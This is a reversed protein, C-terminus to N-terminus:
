DQMADEAHVMVGDDEAAGTAAAAAAAAADWQAATQARLLTDRLKAMGECQAERLVRSLLGDDGDDVLRSALRAALGGGGGGGPALAQQQQQQQQQEAAIKEEQYQLLAFLALGGDRLQLEARRETDTLGADRAALQQWRSLEDGCCLATALVATLRERQTRPHRWGTKGVLDLALTLADQRSIGREAPPPAERAHALLQEVAQQTSCAGGGPLQLWPLREQVRLCYQEDAADCLRVEGRPEEAARGDIPVAVRAVPPLEAARPPPGGADPLTAARHCLKGLSLVAHREDVSSAFGEGQLAWSYLARAAHEFDGEEVLQMWHLGPHRQLFTRLAPALYPYREPLRLLQRCGLPGLEYVGQLLEAAFSGNRAAEEAALTTGGAGGAGGGGAPDEFRLLLAAQLEDAPPLACGPPAPKTCLAALTKFDCFDEALARLQPLAELARLQAAAAQRAGELEARAPGADGRARAVALKTALGHLRVGHVAAIAEVLERRAAVDRETLAVGQAEHVAAQAQVQVAEALRLLPELVAAAATWPLLGARRAAEEAAGLAEAGGGRGDDTCVRLQEARYDVVARLPLVAAGCLAALAGLREACTAAAALPTAATACLQTLLLEFTSVSTAAAAGGDAGGAAAGGAAASPAALLAGYFGAQGEGAPAAAELASLLMQANAASAGNRLKCLALAVAVAEGPRLLEGFRRPQRSPSLMAHHSVCFAVFSAHAALRQKLPGELLAWGAGLPEAALEEAVRVVARATQEAADDRATALLQPLPQPAGLLGGGRAAASAGERWAQKLESRLEDDAVAPAAAGAGGGGGGARAGGGRAPQHYGLRVLRGSLLLLVGLEDGGGGLVCRDGLQGLLPPEAPAAAAAAASGALLLTRAPQGTADRLAWASAATSFVVLPGDVGSAAVLRAEAGGALGGALGGAATLVDDQRWPQPTLTAGDESAVLCMVALQCAASGPPPQRTALLLWVAVGGGAPAPAARFDVVRWDRGGIAELQPELLPRLAHEAAQAWPGTPGGQRTYVELCQTLHPEADSAATLCLAMGGEGCASHAVGVIPMTPARSSQSLLGMVGSLLSTLTSGGRQLASLTVTAAAAGQRATACVAYAQGDSAAFLACASAAGRAGAPPTISQMTRPQATTGRPLACTALPAPAALQLQLTQLLHALPYLSLGSRWCVLLLPGDGPNVVCVLSADATEGAVGSALRMCAQPADTKWVHLAGGLAVWAIGASGVGFSCPERLHDPQLDRQRLATHLEAPLEGPSSLRHLRTARLNDGEPRVQPLSFGGTAPARPQRAFPSLASSHISRQLQAEHPSQPHGHKPTKLADMSPLAARDFVVRDAQPDGFM